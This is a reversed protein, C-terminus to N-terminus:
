CGGPGGKPKAGGGSRRVSFVWHLFWWSIGGVLLWALLFALANWSLDM